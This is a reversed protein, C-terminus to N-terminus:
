ERLYRTYLVQKPRGQDDVLGYGNDMSDAWAYWMATEVQGPFENRIINMFAVAYDAISSAHEPKGQQDLIGWETVWLPVGPMVKAYERLTASLSGHISWRNSVPGTGYPHVGLGDPRVSGMAALTDRAYAPGDGAGTVHGGTIIKAGGAVPRMKKITETLLHAYDRAPIPVAARAHEPKTDQENWIQFADVLKSAAFQQAITRCFDSYTVTLERWRDSNMQPWVYGAGEGYVQHALVLLVRMGANKYRQIYPLFRNYAYGLDRNGHTGNRPDFSVNYKIRVWDIGEMAAAEPAGLRHDIDLNMGKFKLAGVSRPGVAQLYWAAAFGDKSRPTRVQIWQNDAESTGVKRLTRGHLELTDSLESSQVRDIIRFSTGPKERVNLTTAARLKMGEYYILPGPDVVDPLVYGPLGKGPRQIVLKISTRDAGARGLVDGAKIQQGTSVQIDELGAYTMLYASGDHQVGIQVYQGYGLATPQTVVTAVTGATGCRIMSGAPAHLDLGEHPKGDPGREAFSRLIRTQWTEVPWDITLRDFIHRPSTQREGYRDKLQIRQALVSSLQAPTSVALVDVRVVVPYARRIHEVANDEFWVGPTQVATINRFRNLNYGAPSRIIAVREFANQYPKAADLWANFNFDPLVLAHSIPIQFDTM